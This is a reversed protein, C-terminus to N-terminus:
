LKPPLKMLEEYLTDIFSNGHLTKYDNYTLTICEREYIPLYGKATFEYYKSTITARLLNRDVTILRDQQIILQQLNTSQSMNTEEIKSLQETILKLEGTIQSGLYKKIGKYAAYCGGCVVGSFKILDSFPQLITIINDLIESM